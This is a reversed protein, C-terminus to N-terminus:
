CGAGRQLRRRCVSGRFLGARDAAGGRRSDRGRAALATGQGRDVRQARCRGTATRRDCWDFAVRATAAHTLWFQLPRLLEPGPIQTILRAPHKSSTSAASPPVRSQTHTVRHCTQGRTRGLDLASRAAAAIVAPARARRGARTGRRAASLRSASGANRDTPSSLSPCVIVEPDRGGRPPSPRWSRENDRTRRMESRELTDGRGQVPSTAPRSPSPPRARRPMAAGYSASRLAASTFACNKSTTSHLITISMVSSGPLVWPAQNSNSILKLFHM